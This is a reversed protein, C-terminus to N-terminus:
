SNRPAMSLSQPPFAIRWGVFACFSVAISVGLALGMGGSTVVALLLGVGLGSALGAARLAEERVVHHRCLRCVPYRLAQVERENGVHEGRLPALEDEAKGLCCACAGPMRLTRGLPLVVAPLSDSKMSVAQAPRAPRPTEDGPAGAPKIV